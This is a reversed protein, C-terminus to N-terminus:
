FGLDLAFSGNDAVPLLPMWRPRCVSGSYANGGPYFAIGATVNWFEERFGPDGGSASPAIYTFGAFLSWCDNIPMQASAGLLWEGLEEAVGAYVRTDLGTCCVHHWFLSGQDIARTTHRTFLCEFDDESGDGVSGQLGIENANNLCYGIQGRIQGLGLEAACATTNYTIMYDYVLGWSVRDCSFGCPDCCQVCRRFVGATFFLQEEISSPESEPFQDDRGHFDYAGYSMGFQAGIGHTRLLPVGANFGIRGGFNDNGSGDTPGRWSDIAGFLYMNQFLGERDNCGNACSQTSATPQAPGENQTGNIPAELSTPLVAPKASGRVVEPRGLTISSKKPLILARRESGKPSVRVVDDHSTTTPSQAQAAVRLSALGLGLLCGNRVFRRVWGGSINM